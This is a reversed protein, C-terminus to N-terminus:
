HLTRAAPMSAYADHALARGLADILKRTKEFDAVVDLERGQDDRVVLRIGEGHFSDLRVLQATPRSDSVSM